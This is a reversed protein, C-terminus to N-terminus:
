MEKSYWLNSLYSYDATKQTTIGQSSAELSPGWWLINNIEFVNLAHSYYRLNSLSGLFGGNNCVFVDSYNQKPTNILNIRKTLVGNVYIDLLQGELRIVLNFWKKLPVNSIDVINNQNGDDPVITNMIIRIINDTTNLYVGPSNSVSSIGTTTYYNDGKNFIHQYQLTGSSSTNTGIQNINLWVSWTFEAGHEENNSRNLIISKTDKPNQSIIIPTNGNILGKILYPNPSPSLYYGILSIGLYMIFLFLVIIFILFVFKVIISNSQLFEQSGNIVEKSSYDKLTDEIGTKVSNIGNQVNSITDKAIDGIPIQNLPQPGQPVPNINM